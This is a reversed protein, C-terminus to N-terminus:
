NGYDALLEQLKKRGRYSWTMITGVPCDLKNAIEQYSFGELYALTVVLRYCDPLHELAQQMDEIMLRDFAGSSSSTMLFNKDSESQQAYLWETITNTVEKRSKHYTNIFTNRLIQFLWAKCDTDPKFLHFSQYAKLYTEQILDEAETVNQTMWHATNYLSKFYIMTVHEFTRRKGEKEFAKM